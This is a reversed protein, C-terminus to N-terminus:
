TKFSALQAKLHEVEAYKMTGLQVEHTQSETKIYLVLGNVTLSQVSSMPISVKVRSNPNRYSIGDEDINLFSRFQAYTGYALMVIFVMYFAVHLYNFLSATNTTMMHWLSGMMLLGAVILFASYAFRSPNKRFYTRIYM